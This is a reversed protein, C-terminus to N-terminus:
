TGQIRAMNKQCDASDMIHRMAGETQTDSLLDRFFEHLEACSRDDGKLSDQAAIICVPVDFFQISGLPVGCRHAKRLDGILVGPGDHISFKQINFIIGEM